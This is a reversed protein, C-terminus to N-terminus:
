PEVVVSSQRGPEVIVVDLTVPKTGVLTVRYTGPLLELPAGDVTGRGVISGTADVVEYPAGFAARLADRLGVADRADYYQGNGVDALRAITKRSKRDLGLGVVNVSVDFGADILSRVAAKPDGGCTERGDSVVVVVRPGTVAALDDGVAAIAAALPTRVSKPITLADITATMSEPDLPGLPVALETQCSLAEPRLTRLAVPTGARLRENVLDRLVSKAVDIRRERGLRKLMSGSTDLVLEVAVDAAGTAAGASTAGAATAGDEASVVRLSGPKPPELPETSLELSLGYDAPRRLWAAMRDFSEDIADISRAYQYAGGGAAAWDQMTREGQVPSSAGGIHVAFVRPGVAGLWRWAETNRGYSSTESDTLLLIARAGERTALLKAADILGTEASSSGTQSGTHADLRNQLLWGDDSFDELLPPADFDILQLAEEGPVVGRTYSRLAGAIIPVYQAISMSTDYAVVVSFPPQEVRLRYSAGPSVSAVHEVTGPRAGPELGMPVEAGSEDYLALGVGVTPRGSVVFRATVGDEPITATYWDVDRGRSVRGGVRDGAVLVRDVKGEADAAGDEVQPDDTPGPEADPAPEDHASWELPGASSGYGREGAVSRDYDAEEAELVRVVAPLEIASREPQPIRGTM